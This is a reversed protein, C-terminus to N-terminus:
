FLTLCISTGNRKGCMTEKQKDKHVSTVRTDMKPFSDRSRNAAKNIQRWPATFFAVEKNSWPAQHQKVVANMLPDSYDSKGSDYWGLM